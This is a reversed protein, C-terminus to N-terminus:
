PDIETIASDSLAGAAETNDVSLGSGQVVARASLGADPRFEIGEFSLGRDHDTFGLVM